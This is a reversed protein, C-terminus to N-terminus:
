EEDLWAFPPMVCNVVQIPVGSRQASQALALGAATVCEVTPAAHCQRRAHEALARVLARGVGRRREQPAVWVGILHPGGQGCEDTPSLTALGIPRRDLMAVACNTVCAWRDGGFLIGALARRRPDTDSALASVMQRALEDHPSVIRIDPEPVTM